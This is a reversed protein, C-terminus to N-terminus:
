HQELKLKTNCNFEWSKLFDVEQEMVGLKLELKLVGHFKKVMLKYHVVHACCILACGTCKYEQIAELYLRHM